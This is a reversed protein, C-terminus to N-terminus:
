KDEQVDSPAPIVRLSGDVVERAVQVPLPRGAADTMWVNVTGQEDSLTAVGAEPATTSEAALRDIADTIRKCCNSVAGGTAEAVSDAPASDFRTAARVYEARVAERLKALVDGGGASPAPETGTLLDRAEEDAEAALRIGEEVGRMFIAGAPNADTVFQEPEPSVAALAARAMGHYRKTLPQSPILSDWPYRDPVATEDAEYIARAVREVVEPYEGVAPVPPSADLAAFLVRAWAYTERSVNVTDPEDDLWSPHPDIADFRERLRAVGADERTSSASAAALVKRAITEGIERQIDPDCQELEQRLGRRDGLDRLVAQIQEETPDPTAMLTAGIPM